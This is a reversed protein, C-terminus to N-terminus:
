KRAKIGINAQMACATIANVIKDVGSSRGGNIVPKALGVPFTGFFEFNTLQTLAHILVNGVTIEPFIFVNAEGKLPSGPCKREASEPSYAADFQIEGDIVLSPCSARVLELAEHIDKLVPNDGSGHTSYSLLAVKPVIGLSNVFRAANVAIQALEKHGPKIVFDTDSFFLVREGVVLFCVATVLTTNKDTGIIQLVPRMWEATSFKFGGIAGDVIGRRLQLAAYANPDNLMERAKVATMGKHKRISVLEEVDKETPIHEMIDAGDLVIGFKGAKKLINKKNGLLVPVSLGASASIAAAKILRDDEGEVLLIRRKKRLAIERMLSMINM